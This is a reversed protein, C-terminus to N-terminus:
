KYPFTQRLWCGAFLHTNPSSKNSMRSFYSTLLSQQTPPPPSYPAWLWQRNQCGWLSGVEKKVLLGTIFLWIMLLCGFLFTHLIKKKHIVTTPINFISTYNNIQLWPLSGGFELQIYQPCWGWTLLHMLQHCFYCGLVCYQM